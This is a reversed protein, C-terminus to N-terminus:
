RDCLTVSGSMARLRLDASGEGRTGHLESGSGRSRRRLDGDAFCSNIGGSFTSVDYTYGAEATASVNVSGSVAEVEMDGSKELRGRFSISGSVTHLQVRDVTDAMIRLAGSTSKAEIDGAVHEIRMGGSVSSLRLRGSKGSGHVEVSGSVTRAELDEGQTAARIGGSVSKLRLRGRVGEVGISASVTIAELESGAPVRIDLYAASDRGREWEEDVVVRIDVSSGRQSVDVRAVGRGLRGQVDVEPRDWAYVRVSGATNSISIRDRNGTAIRKSFNTADGAVAAHGAALGIFLVVLTRM